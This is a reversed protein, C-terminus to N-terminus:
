EGFGCALFYTNPMASVALADTGGRRCESGWDNGHPEQEWGESIQELLGTLWMMVCPIRLWVLHQQEM